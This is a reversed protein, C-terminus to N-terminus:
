KTKSWKRECVERANESQAVFKVTELSYIKNEVGQQKLDKDLAIRQNPNERWMEFGEIFPLDELFNAYVLWRDCVTVNAYTKYKEEGNYCRRLMGKWLDYERTPKGNVKTTFDGEGLCAVEYVSTFYPNKVKGKRCYEWRTHVEAGHEDVFKVTVNDCNVYEIIFFTCGENSVFTEGLREERLNRGM